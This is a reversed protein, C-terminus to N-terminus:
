LLGMNKGNIIAEYDDLTDPVKGGSEVISQNLEDNECYIYSKKDYIVSKTTRRMGNIFGDIGDKCFLKFCGLIFAVQFKHWDVRIGNFDGDIYHQQIEDKSLSEFRKLYKM